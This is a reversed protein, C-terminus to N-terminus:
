IAVLLPPNFTGLLVFCFHVWENSLLATHVLYDTIRTSELSLLYVFYAVDIM